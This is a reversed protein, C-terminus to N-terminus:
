YDLLIYEIWVDRNDYAHYPLNTNIVIYLKHNLANGIFFIEPPAPPPNPSSRTRWSHWCAWSNRGTQYSACLNRSLEHCRTGCSILLLCTVSSHYKSHNRYWVKCPVIFISAVGRALEVGGLHSFVVFNIRSFYGIYSYLYSMCNTFRTHIGIYILWHIYLTYRLGVPHLPTHIRRHISIYIYISSGYM